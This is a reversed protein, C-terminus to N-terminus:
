HRVHELERSFHVPVKSELSDMNGRLFASFEELAKQAMQSDVVCLERIASLTNYLFHPQIQSLMVSRDSEELLERQKIEKERLQRIIFYQRVCVALLLVVFVALLIIWIVNM